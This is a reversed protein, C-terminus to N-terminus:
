PRLPEDAYPPAPEAILMLPAPHLATEISDQPKRFCRLLASLLFVALLAVGAVRGFRQLWPRCVAAFPQLQFRLYNSLHILRAETTNLVLRIRTRCLKRLQSYHVSFSQGKKEKVPTEASQAPPQGATQEAAKRDEFLEMEHGATSHRLFGRPSDPQKPDETKEIIGSTDEAGAAEYENILPAPDLGLYEAYIKMFGKAYIPAPIRSYDENELAEIVQVKIRTGAAAQSLTMEQKKRAERLINGLAM